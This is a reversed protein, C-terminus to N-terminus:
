EYCFIVGGIRYGGSLHAADGTPTTYEPVMLFLLPLNRVSVEMSGFPNKHQLPSFGTYRNVVSYIELSLWM